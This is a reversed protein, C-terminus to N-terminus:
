PHIPLSHNEQIQKRKFRTNQPQLILKKDRKILIALFINIFLTALSVATSKGDNFLQLSTIGNIAILIFTYNGRFLPFFILKCYAFCAPPITAILFSSVIITQCVDFVGL